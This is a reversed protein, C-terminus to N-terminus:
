SFAFRVCCIADRPVAFGEIKGVLDELTDNCIEDLVVAVHEDSRAIVSGQLLGAANKLSDGTANVRIYVKDGGETGDARKFGGMPIRLPFPNSDCARRRRAAIMIDSLLGSATSPQGAGAGYYMTEGIPEGSILVGNFVGRVNALVHKNPIFTPGVTLEVGGSENMQATALLKLSYGHEHAFLFESEDLRTIGDKHVATLPIEQGFALSALIVIKYMADDGDVDAAPNPEAYGLEQAKKIAQGLSLGKEDELRSLIYNCTGNVIGHISRVQNPALAGQLTSILPIGAAVSAEYLLMANNARALEELEAGYTAILCKNATIFDKGSSLVARAMEYALTPKGDPGVGVLEVIASLSDDQSLDRWNNTFNTGAPPTIGRPRDFDRDAISVLEIGGELRSALLESHYVLHKVLGAGINGFGILGIRFPEAM